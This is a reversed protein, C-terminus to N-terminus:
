PRSGEGTGSAAAMEPSAGLQLAGDRPSRLVQALIAVSDPGGSLHRHRRSVGGPAEHTGFSFVAGRLWGLHSGFLSGLKALSGFVEPPLKHAQAEGGTFSLSVFIGGFIQNVLSAQSTTQNARPNTTPPRKQVQSSCPQSHPESATQSAPLRAAQYSPQGAIQSAIQRAIQSAIQSASLSWDGTSPGQVTGALSGALNGALWVALWGPSGALWVAVSGYWIARWGSQWGALSGPAQHSSAVKYGRSAGKLALRRWAVRRRGLFGLPVRPIVFPAVPECCVKKALLGDRQLCCRMM